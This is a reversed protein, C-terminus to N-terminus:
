RNCLFGESNLCSQPSTEPPTKGLTLAFDWIRCFRAGTRAQSRCTLTPAGPWGQGPQLEGPVPSLRGRRGGVDRLLAPFAARNM